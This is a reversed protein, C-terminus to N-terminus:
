CLKLNWIFSHKDTELDNTFLFVLMAVSRCLTFFSSRILMNKELFRSFELVEDETGATHATLIQFLDGQDSDIDSGM